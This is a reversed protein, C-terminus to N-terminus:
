SRERYLAARKRRERAPLPRGGAARRQAGQRGAAAPGPTSSLEVQEGDAGLPVANREETIM